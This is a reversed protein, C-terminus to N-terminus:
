NAKPRDYLIYFLSCLLLYVIIPFSAWGILSPVFDATLGMGETIETLATVNAILLMGGLFGYGIGLWEQMNYSRRCYAIWESIASIASVVSILAAVAVILVEAGFTGIWVGVVTSILFIVIAASLNTLFFGFRIVVKLLADGDGQNIASRFRQWHSLDDGGADSLGRQSETMM